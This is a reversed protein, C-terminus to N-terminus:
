MSIKRVFYWNNFIQTVSVGINNWWLRKVFREPNNSKLYILYQYIYIDNGTESDTTWKSSRMFFSAGTEGNPEVDFGFLSTEDCIRYISPISYTAIKKFYTSMYRKIHEPLFDANMYYESPYDENLYRSWRSEDSVYEAIATFETEYKLLIRKAREPTLEQQSFFNNLFILMIAGVVVITIWVTRQKKM